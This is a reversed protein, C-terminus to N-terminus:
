RATGMISLTERGLAMISGLLTKHYLPKELVNSFDPDM